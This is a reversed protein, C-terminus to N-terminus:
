VEKFGYLIEQPTVLPDIEKIQNLLRNCTNIVVLVHKYNKLQEEETATECWQEMKSYRALAANYQIKLSKLQM